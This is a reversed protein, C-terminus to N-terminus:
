KRHVLFGVQVLVQVAQHGVAFHGPLIKSRKSCSPLVPVAGAPARLIAAQGVGLADGHEVVADIFM